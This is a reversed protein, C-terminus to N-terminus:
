ETAMVGAAPQETAERLAQELAAREWGVVKQGGPLLFTPYRRVGYRLCKWLGEPSQPDVVRVQLSPGFRLRLENIWAMLREFDALFEAPYERAMEQRASEGVMDGSVAECSLCQRFTTPIPMIVQLRLPGMSQYQLGADERLRLVLPLIGSL